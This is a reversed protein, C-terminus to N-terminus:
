SARALALGTKRVLRSVVFCNINGDEGSSFEAIDNKWETWGLHPLSAMGETTVDGSILM